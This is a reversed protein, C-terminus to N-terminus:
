ARNSANDDEKWAYMPNDFECYISSSEFRTELQHNSHLDEYVNEIEEDYSGYIPNNLVRDPASDCYSINDGDGSSQSM